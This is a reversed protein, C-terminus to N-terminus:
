GFGFGFGLVQFYLSLFNEVFIYENFLYFSFRSTHIFIRLSFSERKQEIKSCSKAQTRQETSPLLSFQSYIKMTWKSESQNWNSTQKWKSHFQMFYIINHSRLNKSSVGGWRQSMWVGSRM